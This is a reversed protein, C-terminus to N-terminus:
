NGSFLQRFLGAATLARHGLCTAGDHDRLTTPTTYSGSRWLRNAGSSGNRWCIRAATAMSIALAAQVARAATGNGGQLHEGDGNMLNGDDCEEQGEVVGNCCMAPPPHPYQALAPGALTALLAIATKPVSNVRMLAGRTTRTLARRPM